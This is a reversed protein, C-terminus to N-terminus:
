KENKSVATQKKRAAEKQLRALQKNREVQRKLAMRKAYLERERQLKQREEKLKKMQKKQKETLVKKSSTSTEAKQKIPKVPKQKKPREPKEQKQKEPKQKKPKEPKQKKIKNVKNKFVTDDGFIYDMPMNNTTKAEKLLRKAPIQEKELKEKQKAKKLNKRYAKSKKINNLKNIAYKKLNSINEKHKKAVKSKTVSFGHKINETPFSINKFRNFLLAMKNVLAKAFNKIATFVVFLLSLIVTYFNKLKKYINAKNYNKQVPKKPKELKESKQNKEKEPKAKQTELVIPEKNIKEFTPIDSLDPIIEKEEVAPVSVPKETVDSKTFPVLLSNDVSIKPRSNGCTLWLFLSNIILPPIVLIVVAVTLLLNDLLLDKLVPFAYVLLITYCETLSLLICFLLFSIIKIKLDFKRKKLTKSYPLYSFNLNYKLAVENRVPELIFPVESKEQLSFALELLSPSSDTQKLTHLTEANESIYKSFTIKNQKSIYNSFVSFIAIVSAPNLSDSNWLLNIASNILDIKFDKCFGSKIKIFFKILFSNKIKLWFPGKILFCGSKNFIDSLTQVCSNNFPKKHQYLKAFVCYVIINFCTWATAFVLLIILINISQKEIVPTLDGFSRYVDPFFKKLKKGFNIVPLFLFCVTFLYYFSRVLRAKNPNQYEYFPPEEPIIEYNENIDM